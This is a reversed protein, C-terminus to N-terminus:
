KFLIKIAGEVKNVRTIEIKARSLAGINNNAILIERFGQREAEKVRLDINNVPRIEGSLGVEGAFCIKKNVPKDFSSSLIPCIVALDIAPDNVKIGGAINLFVDKTALRFGAKKELVALLM